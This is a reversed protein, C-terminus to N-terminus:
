MRGCPCMTMGMAQASAAVGTGHSTFGIASTAGPRWPSCMRGGTVAMGLKQCGAVRAPGDELLSVSHLGEVDLPQEGGPTPTASAM